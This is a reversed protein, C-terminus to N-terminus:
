SGYQKALSTVFEKERKYRNKGSCKLSKIRNELDTRNASDELYARVVAFNHIKPGDGLLSAYQTGSFAGLKAQLFDFLDFLGLDVIERYRSSFADRSFLRISAQLGLKLVVADLYEQFLRSDKGIATAVSGSMFTVLEDTTMNHPDGLLGEVFHMFESDACRRAVSGSMFTVLQATTMKYPDGLLREVFLMFEPKDCRSAVSDSMFSVLQDTTMKYPDGLLREVFRMFEPNDCRSAVSGSMFTVLQATTMKYPDGLLREVFLMLEPKDCRTAVSNSMFRVLQDTTTKYPDSLLREVFLMFEPKDCRTAVSNSMFTVLQPTTMKYPDGILREVFRMFEPKDCRSAVADSMFTVLQATTMKYPEGLLREVFRMFEPNDCRSAVADSMFTVLQATTMKYPEGLLREVFRMFEPNDCRSAVSDSMFTVLQDTTMKFKGSQDILKDVFSLFETRSLNPAGYYKKRFRRATASDGLRLKLDSDSKEAERMIDDHVLTSLRNVARGQGVAKADFASRVALSVPNRAPGGRTRTHIFGRCAHRCPRLLPLM